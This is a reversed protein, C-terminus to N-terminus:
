LDLAKPENPSRSGRRLYPARTGEETPCRGRLCWAIASGGTSCRRLLGDPGDVNDGNATGPVIMHDPKPACPGEGDVQRTEGIRLAYGGGHHCFPQWTDKPAGHARALYSFEADGLLQLSVDRTRLPGLALGSRVKCTRLKVPGWGYTAEENNHNDSWRWHMHFCDHACFPAM